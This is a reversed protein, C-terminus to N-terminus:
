EAVSGPRRDAPVTGPASAVSRSLEVDLDTDPDLVLRVTDGDVTHISVETERRRELQVGACDSAVRRAASLVVLCGVAAVLTVLVIPAPGVAALSAFSGVATAGAIWRSRSRTRRTLARSAVRVPPTFRTRLSSVTRTAYQPGGVLAGPVRTADSLVGRISRSAQQVRRGPRLRRPDVATGVGSRTNMTRSCRRAARWNAAVVTRGVLRGFREALRVPRTTAAARVGRAIPALPRDTRTAYLRYCADVSAGAWRGLVQVGSTIRWALTALLSRSVWYLRRSLDDFWRSMGASLRRSGWFARRSLAGVATHLRWWTSAVWRGARALGTLRTRVWMTAGTTLRTPVIRRGFLAGITGVTTLCVLAAPIWTGDTRWQAMAVSLAVAVFVASLGGFGGVLLRRDIGEVALRSRTFRRITGISAYEVDVLDGTPSLCLVRRDTLGIAVSGRVSDDILRGDTVVRLDEDPVLREEIRRRPPQM